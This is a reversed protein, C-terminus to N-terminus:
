YQSAPQLLLNAWCGGPMALELCIASKLSLLIVAKVLEPQDTIFPTESTNMLCARSGQKDTINMRVAVFM